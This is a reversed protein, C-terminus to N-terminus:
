PRKPNIRSLDANMLFTVMFLSSAHRCLGCWIIEGKTGRLFYCSFGTIKYASFDPQGFQDVIAKGIEIQRGSERSKKRSQIDAVPEPDQRMVNKEGRGAQM